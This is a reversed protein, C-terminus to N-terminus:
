SKNGYELDKPKNKTKVITVNYKMMLKIFNTKARNIGTFYGIVFIVGAIGTYIGILSLDM